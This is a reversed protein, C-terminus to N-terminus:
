GSITWQGNIKNNNPKLKTQKLAFRQESEREKREAKWNAIALKERLIINKEAMSEHMGAIAEVKKEM